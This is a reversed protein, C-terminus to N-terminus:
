ASLLCVAIPLLEPIPKGISIQTNGIEKEGASLASKRLM